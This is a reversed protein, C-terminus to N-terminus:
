SGPTETDVLRALRVRDLLECALREAEELTLHMGQRSGERGLWVRPEAERYEQILSVDVEAGDGECHHGTPLPDEATLPFSVSGGSHWRDDIADGDKHLPGWECWPPCGNPLWAPRKAASM